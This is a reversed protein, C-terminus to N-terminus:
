RWPEEKLSSLHKTSDTEFGRTIHGIIVGMVFVGVFLDLLVGMEVLFPMAKVLLLGFIFIGNELVLYGLIQTIARWRTVLLLYGVIVTALSTPVVSQALSRTEADVGDPLGAILTSSFALAVGTGAAGMLLSPIFGFLPHIEREIGVERVAFLLTRPIVVGKVLVTALVLVVVRMDIDHILLPMLGILVGQFGVLMIATPLRSTVLASFNLLMVVVLLPNLWSESM